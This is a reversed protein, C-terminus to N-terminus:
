ATQRNWRALASPVVVWRNVSFDQATQTANHNKAFLVCLYIRSENHLMRRMEVHLIVGKYLFSFHVGNIPSTIFCFVVIIKSIVLNTITKEDGIKKNKNKEM